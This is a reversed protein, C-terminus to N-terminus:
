VIYKKRDALKCKLLLEHTTQTGTCQLPLSSNKKTLYILDEVSYIIIGDYMDLLFIRCKYAHLLPAIKNLKGTIIM